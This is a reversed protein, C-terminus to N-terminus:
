HTINIDEFDNKNFNSFTGTYLVTPPVPAGPAATAHVHINAWTKLTNIETILANLKTVIETINILGDNDGGNFQVLDTDILIKDVDTFLSVFGKQENIFTVIVYSDITPIQVIGTSGNLSAQLRAKTVNAGGDIPSVECTRESESVSVVTCVKSYIEESSLQENIINNLIDRSTIM